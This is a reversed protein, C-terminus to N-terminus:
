IGKSTKIISTLLAIIEKLDANLSDFQKQTIDEAGVLLELWYATEDAEKLAISLKHIFDDKSQANSSERTNAGISTGSKLLQRVIIVDVGEQRLFKAFKVIRIAFKKTKEAIINTSNM